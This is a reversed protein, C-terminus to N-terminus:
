REPPGARRERAATPSQIPSSLRSLSYFKLFQRIPSLSRIRSARSFYVRESKSLPTADGDGREARASRALRSVSTVRARSRRSNDSRIINQKRFAVRFSVSERDREQARASLTSEGNLAFRHYGLSRTKHRDSAVLPSRSSTLSLVRLDRKPVITDCQHSTRRGITLEFFKRGPEEDRNSRSLLSTGIARFLIM